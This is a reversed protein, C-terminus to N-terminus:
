NYNINSTNFKLDNKMSFFSYFTKTRKKINRKGYDLTCDNFVHGCPAIISLKVNKDKATKIQKDLQIIRGEINLKITQM